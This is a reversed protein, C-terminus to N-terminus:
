KKIKKKNHPLGGIKLFINYERHSLSPTKYRPKSVINLNKELDRLVNHTKSKQLIKQDLM